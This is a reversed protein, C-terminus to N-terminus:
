TQLNPDIQSDPPLTELMFLCQCKHLTIKHNHLKFYTTNTNYNLFVPIM